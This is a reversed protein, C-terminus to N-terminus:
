CQNHWPTAFENTRRGEEFVFKKHSGNLSLESDLGAPDLGGEPRM